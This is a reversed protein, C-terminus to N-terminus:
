KKLHTSPAPTPNALPSGAPFQGTIWASPSFVALGVRAEARLAVLNRTFFDSHEYSIAVAAEMRDLIAATSAAGVLFTGSPMHADVVIRVGWLAPSAAMASPDGFVYEGYTTKVLRLAEADAPALVVTDAAVGITALQTVAHSVIDLASDGPKSAAPNYATAISLIGKLETAPGVGVLAQRDIEQRVSALLVQDLFVQMMTLDLLAQTSASTWAAITLIPETQLAVTVSQEAKTDGEAVQTKAGPVPLSTQRLYQVQNGADIIQWNLADVFGAPPLPFPVVGPLRVPAVLSGSTLVTSKTSLGGVVAKFNASAPTGGIHKPCWDRFGSNSIFRSGPSEQFEPSASAFSGPPRSLREGLSQVHKRLESIARDRPELLGKLEDVLQTDTL